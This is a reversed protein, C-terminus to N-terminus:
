LLNGCPPLARTRVSFVRGLVIREDLFNRYELSWNPGGNNWLYFFLKFAQCEFPRLEYIFHGVTNSSRSVFFEVM